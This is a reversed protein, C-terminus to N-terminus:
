VDKDMGNRRKWRRGGIRKCRRRRRTGRREGKL